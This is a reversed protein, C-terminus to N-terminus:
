AVRTRRPNATTRRVTVTRDDVNPDKGGGRFENPWTAEVYQRSQYDVFDAAELLVGEEGEFFEPGGTFTSFTQPHLGSFHEPQMLDSM